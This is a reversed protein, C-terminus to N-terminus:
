TLSAEQQAFLTAYRGRLAMLEDHSGQEVLAGQDMVLIRDAHRLAGLRHTIFLVTSGRYTEMLNATLQRETDVDLASTAEDLILLRPRKLVMRVIAIRQRQGGSLAAGREGVSSSYGAPLAQIFEHACAVQAAQVIEEFGADPRALALNAMVSGDFLLSDQPVVGIQARLSYLDVKVINHGDIRIVGESPDYLRTLLKLLTSKGSGSSGVIGVFSGAAIELNVNALQLPGQQAFRFSLGQYAIHGQVPPLPPLQEGAIEIEEPHDVIDALRELSLSTEQFSQWLTALRLLPSTVYGALIRFAILQGLTLEGKLVLTAGVWLVLLGSLQELFRSASGAATSTVTNRFGALIQTSYLQQWRWRSHLEMGQGKVTEMGGLTEVLHSQVRANAEAQDRLQRQIAPASLATVGLFLPVVALAWITLPVSYLLMVAIYILSFLADLVVTLATGTLFRRIKELENIRSSIEGVPRRAFYGLPLRLLHDIISAGLAVDIRNTTDSFLYTRLSGLVAQAVAMGVLLTGLVNLSSLNGQTIVADIIQQILLPNLLAFLQVFFSAILVQVLILKHQQLAPVFWALGFRKSPSTASREICLVPVTGQPGVSGVAELPLRQQQRTRPDSVLAERANIQWIVQPHGEFWSLAPPQLRPLQELPLQLLSARLGMLDCLAALQLPGLGEDGQRQLQDALVRRLVDRRFPLDFQRALMRLCALAEDLEGSGSLHPFTGDSVQRGYWDELADRQQQPVLASPNDLWEPEILESAADGSAEVGTGVVLAAPLAQPPWPEPRVLLRAPLRGQVRVVDAAGFQQGPQGGEVNASSLLLPPSTPDLRHEGPPLLVVQQREAHEALQNSVWNLLATRSPLRVAGCPELVGYLEELTPKAFAAQLEGRQQVLPLLAEAPLLWVQSLEAAALALPNSGRLLPVVGATSGPGLRQLTFPEGREDRALLRLQGRVLLLAGPSPAGFDILKQGPRLQLPVMQEALPAQQSRPLQDFPAWAALAKLSAALPM